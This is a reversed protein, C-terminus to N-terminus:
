AAQDVFKGGALSFDRREVDSMANFQERTAVKSQGTGGGGPAGGGGNAPASKFHKGDDSDLFGKIYDGAPKDAITVSYKGDALDAKAQQKVMATFAPVLAPVVNGAAIAANIEADLAYSRAASQEVELAKAAADREKTAATLQKKTEALDTLAKDRESEIRAFDEPSLDGAQRLKALLEQNKKKLGAEAAERESEWDAKAANLAERVAKDIDAQTLKSEDSM